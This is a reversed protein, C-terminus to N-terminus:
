RSHFGSFRVCSAGVLPRSAAPADGAGGGLRQKSWGYRFSVTGIANGGIAELVPRGCFLCVASIFVVPNARRGKLGIDCLVIKAM